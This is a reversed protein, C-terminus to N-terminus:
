SFKKFISCHFKREFGVNVINIKPHRKKIKENFLDDYPMVLTVFINKSIMYELQGNMFFYASQPASFVHILRM